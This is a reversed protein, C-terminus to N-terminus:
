RFKKGGLVLMLSRLKPLNVVLAMPSFVPGRLPCSPSRISNQSHVSFLPLPQFFDECVGDFFFALLSFPKQGSRALAVVLQQVSHTTKQSTVVLCPIKQGRRRDSNQFRPM